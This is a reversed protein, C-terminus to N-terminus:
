QFFEEPKQNNFNVAWYKAVYEKTSMNEGNKPYLRPDPKRLEARRKAMYIRVAENPYKM